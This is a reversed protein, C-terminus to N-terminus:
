PFKQELSRAIIGYFSHGGSALDRQKLVAIHSRDAFEHLNRWIEDGLEPPATAVADILRMIASKRDLPLLYMALEFSVDPDVDSRYQDFLAPMMEPYFARLYRLAIGRQTDDRSAVSRLAAQRLRDDKGSLHVLYWLRNLSPPDHEQSLLGVLTGREDESLPTAEEDTIGEGLSMYEEFRQEPDPLASIAKLRDHADM